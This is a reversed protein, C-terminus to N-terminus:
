MSVNSDRAQVHRSIRRPFGLHWRLRVLNGPAPYQGPRSGRVPAEDLKGRKGRVQFEVIDAFLLRQQNGFREVGEQVALQIATQQRQEVAPMRLVLDDCGKLAGMCGGINKPGDRRERGLAIDDGVTM